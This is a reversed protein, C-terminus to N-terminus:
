SWIKFLTHEIISFNGGEERIFMKVIKFKVLVTKKLAVM